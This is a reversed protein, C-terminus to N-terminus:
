EASFVVRTILPFSVTETQFKETPDVPNALKLRVKGQAIVDAVGTVELDWGQIAPNRTTTVNWIDGDPGERFSLSAFGMPLMFVGHDEGSYFQTRTGLYDELDDHGARQAARNLVASLAVPMLLVFSELDRGVALNLHMTLADIIDEARERPTASLAGTVTKTETSKADKLIGAVVGGCTLEFDDLLKKGTQQLGEGSWGAILHADLFTARFSFLAAKDCPETFIVDGVVAEGNSFESKDDYISTRPDFTVSRNQMVVLQQATPETKAPRFECPIANAAEEKWDGENFYEDLAQSFVEVYISTDSAMGEKIKDARTFQIRTSGETQSVTYANPAEYQDRKMM